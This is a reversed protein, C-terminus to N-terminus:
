WENLLKQITKAFYLFVITDNSNMIWENETSTLM